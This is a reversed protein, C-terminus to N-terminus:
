GSLLLLQELQPLSCYHSGGAAIDRMPVSVILVQAVQVQAM